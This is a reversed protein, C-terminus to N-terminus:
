FGLPKERYNKDCKLRKHRSIKNVYPKKRAIRGYLGVEDLRRHVTSESIIIKLEIDLEAKVSAVSKQRNTKVKQQLIHVAHISPKQRRDRGM